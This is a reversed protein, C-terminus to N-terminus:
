QDHAIDIHYFPFLTIAHYNSKCSGIWYTGVVVLTTFALHLRYLVIHYLKDTVLWQDTTKEPWKSKRRWYFQGDRYIVSINNFITKLV